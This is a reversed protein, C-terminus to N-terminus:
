KQMHTHTHSLKKLAVCFVPFLMAKGRLWAWYRIVWIENLKTERRTESSYCKQLNLWMTPPMERLVSPYIDRTFVNSGQPILTYMSYLLIIISFDIPLTNKQGWKLAIVSTIRGCTNQCSFWWLIWACTSLCMERMLTKMKCTDKIERSNKLKETGGLAVLPNLQWWLTDVSHRLMKNENSM